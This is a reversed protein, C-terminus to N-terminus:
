QLSTLDVPLESLNCECDSLLYYHSFTNPESEKRVNQSISGGVLLPVEILEDLYDDVHISM